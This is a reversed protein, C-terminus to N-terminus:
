SKTWEANCNENKENRQKISNNVEITEEACVSYSDSRKRPTGRCRGYLCRKGPNQYPERYFRGECNVKHTFTKWKEKAESM